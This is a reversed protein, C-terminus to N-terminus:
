IRREYGTLEASSQDDSGGAAFSSEDAAEHGFRLRSLAPILWVESSM